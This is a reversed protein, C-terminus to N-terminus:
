MGASLVLVREGAAEQKLLATLGAVQSNSYDIEKWPGEGNSFSYLAFIAGFVAAIWASQGRDRDRREGDLFRAPARLGDRPADGDACGLARAARQAVVQAIGPADHQARLEM